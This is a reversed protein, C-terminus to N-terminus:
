RRAGRLEQGVARLLARAMFTAPRGGAFAGLM